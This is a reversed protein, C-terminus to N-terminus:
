QVLLSPSSYLVLEIINHTDKNTRLSYKSATNSNRAWSSNLSSGGVLLSVVNPPQRASLTTPDKAKHLFLQSSHAVFMRLSPQVGACISSRHVSILFCTYVIYSWLLVQHKTNTFRTASGCCGSMHVSYQENYQVPYQLLRCYVISGM